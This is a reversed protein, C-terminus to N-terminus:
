SISGQLAVPHLLQEQGPRPRARFLPQRWLSRQPLRDCEALYQQFDTGEPLRTMRVYTGRKKGKITGQEANDQLDTIVFEYDGEAGLGTVSSGGGRISTPLDNPDCFAHICDNYTSFSLVPGDDTIIDWLSRDSVYTDNSFRNNMGMTVSGDSSFKACLRIALLVITQQVVALATTPLM